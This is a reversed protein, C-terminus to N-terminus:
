PGMLELTLTLWNPARSYALEAPGDTMGYVLEDPRNSPDRAFFVGSDRLAQLLASWHADAWEETLLDISIPQRVGTRRLTRGLVQGGESARNSYDDQPNWAGPAWRPAIGRPVFTAKGVQIVSISPASVGTVYIRWYRATHAAFLFLVPDTGAPVQATDADNWSAGDTSYQVQVSASVPGLNHGAIGCYDVDVAAGADIQWWAPLATPQWPTHTLPSDARAAAYGSAETSATITGTIKEVCIRPHDLPENPTPNSTKLQASLVVGM